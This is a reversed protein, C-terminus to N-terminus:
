YERLGSQEDDVIGVDSEVLLCALLEGIQQLNKRGLVANLYHENHVAGLVDRLKHRVYNLHAVHSYSGLHCAAFIHSLLLGVASRGVYGVVPALHNFLQWVLLLFVIRLAYYVHM